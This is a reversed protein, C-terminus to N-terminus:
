HLLRDIVLDPQDRHVSHSAGDAIEWTWAPNLDALARGHEATFAAGLEPDAAIVHVPVSAKAATEILDWSGNVTMIATIAEPDVARHADVRAQVTRPHWTPHAAQYADADATAVENLTATLFADRGETSIRLAPDILVARRAFSPEQSLLVVAVAGGLSHGVLLDWGTGLALVDDALDSLRYSAGRASQGHGRLDPATVSWGQDALAAGIQWWTHGSSTIGHLLLARPAGSKPGWREVHLDISSM